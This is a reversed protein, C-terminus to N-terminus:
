SSTYAICYSTIINKLSKDTTKEPYEPKRWWYFQDVLYLQCLTSLPTLCWLGFWGTSLIDTVVLDVIPPFIVFTNIHVYILYNLM